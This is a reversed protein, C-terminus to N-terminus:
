ALVELRNNSVLDRILWSRERRETDLWLLYQESSLELFGSPAVAFRRTTLRADIDYTSFSVIDGVSLSFHDDFIKRGHLNNGQAEFFRELLDDTVLRGRRFPSVFSRKDPIRTGRDTAEDRGSAFEISIYLDLSM